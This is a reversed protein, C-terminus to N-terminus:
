RTSPWRWPRPRPTGRFRCSCRSIAARRHGIGRPCRRPAAPQRSPQVDRRRRHRRRVGGPRRASLPSAASRHIGADAALGGAAAIRGRQTDRGATRLPFVAAVFQHGGVDAFVAAPRRVGCHVGRARTLRRRERCAPALSTAAAHGDSILMSRANRSARWPRRGACRDTPLRRHADRAGRGLLAGARLGGPVAASQRM